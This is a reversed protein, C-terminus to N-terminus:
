GFRGAVYDATREDQPSGFVDDTAGAEVIGGPTGQEALFFACQQSVRAAQQMNHTVIVVTVQGALEHITEEVRRTSTPDLASCPEDMLLVRPRVALARAICLRQQQGGSLAGGPQRLRDRVEKWLGARTLSEEVLGDKERRGVRTGTLRLGAVVNDYISMAPFPNPKQFVMGIRRRADTLRWSADYIDEGEFLVEGGFAASPILEHMRNLTRLFTSKGCGSPGILASVQGAPMTLSVQGLVQHTGFWASVARAELTAPAATPDVVPLVATDTVTM